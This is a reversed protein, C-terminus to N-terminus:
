KKVDWYMLDHSLSQAQAPTLEFARSPTGGGTPAAKVYLRMTVSEHRDSYGVSWDIIKVADGGGEHDM